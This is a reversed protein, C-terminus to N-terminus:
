SFEKILLDYQQGAGLHSNVTYHEIKDLIIQPIHSNKPALEITAPDCKHNHTNNFKTIHIETANKQFYFSLQWLCNTKTSVSDHHLDINEVKKPNNIGAKWCSYVHCHVISKNISDLDKHTKISVFRNCKAYVNVTNDVIDWTKFTNSVGSSKPLIRYSLSLQLPLHVWKQCYPLQRSSTSKSDKRRKRKDKSKSTNPKLLAKSKKSGMSGALLHVFMKGIKPLTM